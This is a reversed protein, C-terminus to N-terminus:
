RRDFYGLLVVATVLLSTCCSRRLQLQKTEWQNGNAVAGSHVGHGEVGACASKIDLIKITSSSCGLNAEAADYSYPATPLERDLIPAPLNREYKSGPSGPTLVQVQTSSALSPEPSSRPPRVVPHPPLLM